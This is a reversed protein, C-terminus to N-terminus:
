QQLVWDACDQTEFYKGAYVTVFVPGNSLNNTAIDNTDSSNLVAYYCGSRGSSKYTGAKMDVGVKYMGNGSVTNAAVTKEVIGVRRERAAVSKERAAVTDEDTKLRGQDAKLQSQAKRLAAERAPLDGQIKELTAQDDAAQQQAQQESQTSQAVLDKYAQSTKPDSGGASAGGIGIGVLLAVVAVVWGRKWWAKKAAARGTAPTASVAPAVLSASGAGVASAASASVPRTQETWGTGNWYRETRGDVPYWGAAANPNTNTATM